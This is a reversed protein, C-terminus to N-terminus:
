SACGAMTQCVSSAAALPACAKPTLREIAWTFVAAIAVMYRHPNCHIPRPMVRSRSSKADRMTWAMFVLAAQNRLFEPRGAHM